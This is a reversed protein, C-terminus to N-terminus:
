QSLLDSLQSRERMQFHVARGQRFFEEVSVEFLDEHIAEEM